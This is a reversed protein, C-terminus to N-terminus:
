KLLTALSTAQKTLQQSLNEVAELVTARFTNAVYKTVETSSSRVNFRRSPKLFTQSMDVCIERHLKIDVNVDTNQSYPVFKAGSWEVLKQIDPPLHSWGEIIGSHVQSMFTADTVGISAPLTINIKM